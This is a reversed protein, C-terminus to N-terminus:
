EWFPCAGSLSKPLAGRSLCIWLLFLGRHDDGSADDAAAGAHGGACASGLDHLLVGGLEGCRHDANRKQFPSIEEGALRDARGFIGDFVFEGSGPDGGGSDAFGFWIGLEGLAGLSYIGGDGAVRDM